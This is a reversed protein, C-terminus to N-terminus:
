TLGSRESFLTFNIVRGPKRELGPLLNEPGIVEGDSGVVGVQIRRLPSGDDHEHVFETVIRWALDLEKLLEDGSVDYDLKGSITNALGMGGGFGLDAHTVHPRTGLEETVDTITRSSCGTLLALAGGVGGTIMTRRRM